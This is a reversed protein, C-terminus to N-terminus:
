DRPEGNLLNSILRDWKFVIKQLAFRERVRAAAQALKRRLAGDSHLLRLASALAAVDGPATLLGNDKDHVIESPGSRCDSAIVPCGMAMAEILVNPFGEFRSPLVFLECRAMWAEPDSVVGPMNLRDAVGLEEALRMLPEREPGEGLITLRVGEAHLGSMAYAQILLDFGKQKVLRGVGLIEGSDRAHWAPAPPLSRVFNEIVRIRSSPVLWKAWQRVSETQVVLASATPYMVRRATEWLYGISYQRPDIRESVVVPIGAGLLAMLVRINTQEIFSVVVDPRYEVVASRLARGRRINSSIRQFLSNSDWILDVVIRQVRFDIHYHDSEQKSLTLIAVADGNEAWANALESIIREAGGAALSSVVLLIRRPQGQM